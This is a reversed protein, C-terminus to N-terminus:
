GHLCQAFLKKYEDMTRMEDYFLKAREQAAVSFQLWLEPDRAIRLIAAATAQPDGMGTVIGAMGIKKDDASDGEIIAKCGGVDTVVSPIGAFGAELLVMPQGESISTMVVLDTQELIAQIAHPGVIQISDSQGSYEIM